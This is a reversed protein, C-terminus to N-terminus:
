SPRGTPPRPEVCGGDQRALGETLEVENLVTEHTRQLRLARSMWASCTGNSRMSISAKSAFLALVLELEAEERSASRGIPFYCADGSM